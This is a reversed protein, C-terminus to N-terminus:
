SKGATRDALAYLPTVTHAGSKQYEQVAKLEDPWLVSKIYPSEVLWAVPERTASPLLLTAEHARLKRLADFVLRRIEQTTAGMDKGGQPRHWEILESLREAKGIREHTHSALSQDAAAALRRLFAKQGEALATCEAIERLVFAETQYEALKPCDPKCGSPHTKGLCGLRPYGCSCCKEDHRQDSM